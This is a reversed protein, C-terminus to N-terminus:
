FHEQQLWRVRKTMSKELKSLFWVYILFWIIFFFMNIQGIILYKYSLNKKKDCTMDSNLAFYNLSSHIRLMYIGYFLLDIWNYLKHLVFWKIVILVTIYYKSAVPIWIELILLCSYFNM